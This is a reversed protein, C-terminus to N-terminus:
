FKFSKQCTIFYSYKDIKFFIKVKIKINRFNLYIM